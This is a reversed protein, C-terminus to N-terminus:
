DLKEIEADYVGDRLNRLFCRCEETSFRVMVRMLNEFNLPLEQFTEPVLVCEQNFVCGRDAWYFARTDPHYAIANGGISNWVPLFGFRFLIADPVLEQANRAISDLNLLPGASRKWLEEPDGYSLFPSIPSALFMEWLANWELAEEISSPDYGNAALEKIDKIVGM